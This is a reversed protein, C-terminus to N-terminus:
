FFSQGHLEGTPRRFLILRRQLEERIDAGLKPIIVARGPGKRGFVQRAHFVIRVLRRRVSVLYRCVAVPFADSGTARPIKIGNIKRLSQLADSLLPAIDATESLGDFFVTDRPCPAM